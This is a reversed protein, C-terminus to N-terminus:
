INLGAELLNKYADLQDLIRLKSEDDAYMQRLEAVREDFQALTLSSGGDENTLRHTRYAEWEEKESQSLTEPWNRARYRFLLEPLRRDDFVFHEKALENPTSQSVREITQKDDHNFFAGSYLTQEPDFPEPWENQNIAKPLLSELEHWSKLQELHRLCQAQDLQLREAASDDMTKVPAIAPCRNAHIAKVPFRQLNKEELDSYSTFIREALAMEDLAMFEEPDQRLDYVWIANPNKPDRAVPVVMTTCGIRSPYRSSTHLLPHRAKIDLQELVWKKSRHQYLYDYLRPQKERILRAMAITAYVDSLADHAAEHTIGNAQTLEELRFSPVGEEKMPWEIGEPRLAYTMRVMDIIDWRSNGGQWERAYPDIFNRFFGFRTVEDDFRLNNYGVVCTSPASFEQNILKFFEAEPLGRERALQPTIGTVLCAEPSPVMDDAPKCYIVLPDGIINFDEDTRIGAFQAPRDSRPDIGFTEYDHWYFSKTMARSELIFAM